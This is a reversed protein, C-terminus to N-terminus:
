LSETASSDTSLPTMGARTLLEKVVGLLKLDWHWHLPNRRCCFGMILQNEKIDYAGHVEITGKDRSMQLAFGRDLGEGYEPGPIEKLDIGARAMLTPMKKLLHDPGTYLVGSEAM